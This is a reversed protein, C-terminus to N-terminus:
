PLHSFEDSFLLFGTKQGGAHEKLMQRIPGDPGHTGIGGPHAGCTPVDQMNIVFLSRREQKKSQRREDPLSM